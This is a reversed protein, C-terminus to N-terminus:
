LHRCATVVTPRYAVTSQPAFHHETASSGHFADCGSGNRQRFHLVALALAVLFLFIAVV